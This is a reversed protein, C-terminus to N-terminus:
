DNENKPDKIKAHPRTDGNNDPRDKILSYEAQEFNDADDGREERTDIIANNVMGTIDVSKFTANQKIPYNVKIYERDYNNIWVDVRFDGGDDRQEDNNIIPIEVVNDHRLIESLPKIIKESYTNGKVFMTITYGYAILEKQTEDDLGTINVELLLTRTVNLETAEAVQTILFLSTIAAIMSLLLKFNDMKTQLGRFTIM